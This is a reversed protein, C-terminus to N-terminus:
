PAVLVSQTFALLQSVEYDVVRKTGFATHLTGKTQHFLCISGTQLLRTPCNGGVAQAEGQSGADATPPPPRAAAAAM